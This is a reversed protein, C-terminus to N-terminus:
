SPHTRSLRACLPHPKRRRCPLYKHPLYKHLVQPSLAVQRQPAAPHTPASLLSAASESVDFHRQPPRVDISRRLDGKPDFVDVRGGGRSRVLEVAEEIADSEREQQDVQGDASSIVWGLLGRSVKLRM